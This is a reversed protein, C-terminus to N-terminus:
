QGNKIWNEAPINHWASGCGTIDVILVKDNTDVIKKLEDRIADQKKDTKVVWVSELPHKSQPFSQLYEYLEDYDTGPSILDYSILMRYMFDYFLISM